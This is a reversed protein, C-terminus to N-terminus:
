PGADALAARSVRVIRNQDAFYAYGGALAVPSPAVAKPAAARLVRPEVTPGDVIFVAGRDDSTLVGLDDGSVHTPRMPM